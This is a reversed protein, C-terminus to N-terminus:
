PPHRPDALERKLWQCFAGIPGDASSPQRSVLFYADEPVADEIRGLAPVLDGSVLEEAALFDSELIVGLGKVAADIAASSRDVWMERRVALDALGRAALWAPWQLRNRAHILVQRALDAPTELPAPGTLLSPACLPLVREAIIPEASLSPDAPAGYLIGVDADGM